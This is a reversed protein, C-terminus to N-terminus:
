RPWCGSWPASVSGSWCWTFGSRHPPRSHSIPCPSPRVHNRLGPKLRNERQFAAVVFNSSFFFEKRQQRGLPAAVAANRGRSALLALRRGGWGPRINGHAPLDFSGSRPDGVPTRRIKLLSLTQSSAGDSRPQIGEHRCSGQQAPVRRGAPLVARRGVYLVSQAVIPRRLGSQCGTLGIGALLGLALLLMRLPNQYNFSGKM